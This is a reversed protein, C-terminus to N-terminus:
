KIVGESFLILGRTAVDIMLMGVGKIWVEATFGFIFQFQWGNSELHEKTYM